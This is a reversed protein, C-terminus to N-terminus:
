CDVVQDAVQRRVAPLRDLRPSRPSVGGRLARPALPLPAGSGKAEETPMNKKGLPANAARRAFGRGPQPVGRRPRADFAAGPLSDSRRRPARPPTEISREEKFREYFPPQGSSPRTTEAIGEAGLSRM